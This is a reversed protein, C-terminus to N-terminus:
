GCILVEWERLTSQFQEVTTAKAWLCGTDQCWQRFDRQIPSLSGTPTKLEIWGGGGEWVFVYDGSGAILGMAKALAMRVKAAM